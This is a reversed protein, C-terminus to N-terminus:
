AHFPLTADRAESNGCNPCSHFEEVLGGLAPDVRAAEQPDLPLVIKEAHHNMPTGCKPCLLKERKEAM